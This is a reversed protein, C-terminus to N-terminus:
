GNPEHGGSTVEILVRSAEGRGLALRAGRVLVLVPGRGHNQLVTVEAGQTLGLAALRRSFERGGDIRYAIGAAGASLSSLPVAGDKTDLPVSGEDDGPGWREPGRQVRREM